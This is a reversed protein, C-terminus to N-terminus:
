LGIRVPRLCARWASLIITVPRRSVLTITGGGTLIQKVEGSTVFPTLDNRLNGTVGDEAMNEMGPLARSDPDTSGVIDGVAWVSLADNHLAGILTTFHAGSGPYNTPHSTSSWTFNFVIEYDAEDQSVEAEENNM